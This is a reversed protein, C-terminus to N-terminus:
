KAEKNQWKEITFKPTAEAKEVAANTEKAM